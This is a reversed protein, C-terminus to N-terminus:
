IQLSLKKQAIASTHSQLNNILFKNASGSIDTKM